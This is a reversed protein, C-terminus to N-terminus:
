RLPPPPVRTGKTTHSAVRWALFGAGWSLHMTPFILTLRGKEGANRGTAVAAVAVSTLYAAPVALAARRLVALALSGALVTVLAPPAAQRWRLSRPHRRVVERKWRGYGFYQRALAGLSGRPRYRVWLEPDFWVTGGARRLRINLEYDQNRDLTEDFGGVAEVARRDFVGLYVTDTPGEEGGYHFAADGTGFRSTMATAVAREFPTVGEARQIGGVNVAGTRRMTEVARRIYGPSLEAHGDVRVIVEGETAGIAANLGAPATGRWNDVVAVRDGQAALRRARRETDDTSPAVALCIDLPGPYDQAEVAAVAAALHAAEDRVPMVVSVPPWREPSAAADAV